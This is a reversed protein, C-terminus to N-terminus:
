PRVSIPLPASWHKRTSTYYLYASSAPGTYNGTVRAIVDLNITRTEGPKMGRLYATLERPHTEYFGVLKKKKLEKLQWTQWQLAGPISIRAMTMPLHRKTVNTITATLRLVDGMKVVKKSLTTKIHVSARRHSLPDRTRYRLGLGFPLAHQGTWSLKVTNKGTQLAKLFSRNYLARRRKPDLERKLITTGNVWMQLTGPSSKQPYRSEMANLAQLVLVTAQTTGFGGYPNRRKIMWSVARQLRKRSVDAKLMALTALATTELHLNRGYSRTISTGKCRFSGDKRQQRLLQKQLKRTLPHQAGKVKRHALFALALLYPDNADIAQQAAYRVEKGLNAVGAQALAYTIYINNIRVGARFGFRSRASQNYGGEGDRRSKLWAITRQLMSRSVGAYVKKMELFQLVGYATLAEHGPSAGFWEFGGGRSEYRMLRKYGRHLMGYARRYLRPNQIGRRKLYQLVLINPYNSASTQEFCGHPERLMSQLSREWRRQPNTDVFLRGRLHSRDKPLNLVFTTTKGPALRGSRGTSRPYGRSKLQFSRRLVDSHGGGRALIRVWGQGQQAVARIPYFYTKAQMPALKVVGPLPNEELKLHRSLVAEVKLELPTKTNNRLTVPLAMADSYSVTLPTKVALFFPRTARLTHEHYGIHGEGVGTLTVRYTTVNDTLGFSIRAEGWADTKLHPHWFVTERFDSRVVTGKQAPEKSFYVPFQRPYSWRIYPPYSRAGYGYRYGPRFILPYRVMVVGGGRPRPFRLYRFRRELGRLLRYDGISSSTARVGQVRGRSNIIFRVYVKGRLNPNQLLSREYVYKFRSRHQRLVRRIINRSLSGYVMTPGSRILARRRGRRRYRGFGGRGYFGGGGIGYGKGSGGGGRGYTGLAGSISGSKSKNGLVWANDKSRTRRKKKEKKLPAPDQSVSKDKLGTTRPSRIPQAAPPPAPTAAQQAQLRKKRPRRRRTKRRTRRDAVGDRNAARGGLVDLVPQNGGLMRGLPGPSRKRPKKQARRPSEESKEVAKAGTDGASAGTADDTDDQSPRPSHQTAVTTVPDPVIQPTVTLKYLWRMSDFTRPKNSAWFKRTAKPKKGRWIKKWNFDRWGHTGMVLDLARPAKPEDSRFYFNPKHISGKLISTLYRQALVHPSHDDAYSLVTDDVVAVGLRANKVPQNDPTTVKVKLHVTDRPQHTKKVSTVKFKLGKGRHRFVLREALPKRHKADFLTLRLIGRWQHLLPLNIRQQGKRLRFRAHGVITEHQLAAVVIERSRRSHVLLAIDKQNTKFDDEVQFVVPRRAAKPLKFQETVGAPKTLKVYYQTSGQPTYLFRGMGDHFSRLRTLVKGEEDVVMGAIDQPKNDRTRRCSFYVRNPFGQVAQGGEPFFGLRFRRAQLPIPRSITETIGGWPIQAVLMGDDTKLKGPLAFTVIVEGTATTTQSWTKFTTGDLRADLKVTQNALPQGTASKLKLSAEVTDGAGYGKRLFQLKKKIRPPQYKQLTFTKKVTTRSRRHRIMITYEGGAYYRSLPFSFHSHGEYVPAHASRLVRNRPGRLQYFSRGLGELLTNNKRRLAVARVWVTEGPQYIPKDTQVLLHWHRGKSYFRSVKSSWKHDLARLSAGKAKPWNSAKLRVPPFTPKSPKKSKKRPEVPKKTTKSSAAVVVPRFRPMPPSKWGWDGAGIVMSSSASPSLSTPSDQCGAACTVLLGFAFLTRSNM